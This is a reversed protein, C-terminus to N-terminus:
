MGKPMNSIGSVMPGEQFGHVAQLFSKGKKPTRKSLTRAATYAPDVVAPWFIITDFHIPLSIGGTSDSPEVM